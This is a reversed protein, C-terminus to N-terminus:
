PSPAPSKRQRCPCTLLEQQRDPALSLSGKAAAARPPPRLKRPFSAARDGLAQPDSSPELGAVAWRLPWLWTRYYWGLRGPRAFSEAAQWARELVTWPDAALSLRSRNATLILDARSWREAALTRIGVRSEASEWLLLLSHQAPNPLHRPTLSNGRASLTARIGAGTGKVPHWPNRRGQRRLHQGM